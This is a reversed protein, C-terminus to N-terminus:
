PPGPLVRRRIGQEVLRERDPGTGSGPDQSERRFATRAAGGEMQAELGAMRAAVVLVGAGSMRGQGLFASRRGLREFVTALRRAAGERAPPFLPRRTIHIGAFQQGGHQQEGIAFASLVVPGHRRRPIM